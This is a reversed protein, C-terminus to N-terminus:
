WFLYCIRGMTEIKKLAKFQDLEEMDYPTVSPLYLGITELSM